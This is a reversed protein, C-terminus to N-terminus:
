ANPELGPAGPSAAMGRGPVRGLSGRPVQIDKQALTLYGVLVAVAVIGVAATAGDGFAIGSIDRPKSVYDAFSAGLPRTVVYASWFALISNLGLRWAVLPVLMVVGFTIGSALYGM